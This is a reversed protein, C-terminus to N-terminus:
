VAIQKTPEIHGSRRVCRFWAHSLQAFFLVTGTAAALELSRFVWTSYPHALLCIGAAGVAMARVILAVFVSHSKASSEDAPVTGDSIQVLMLLLLPLAVGAGLGTAARIWGPSSWFLFNGLGDVALPLLLVVLASAYPSLTPRRRGGILLSVYCAFMGLHM